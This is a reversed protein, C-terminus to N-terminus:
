NRLNINTNPPYYYTENNLVVISTGTLTANSGTGIDVIGKGGNIILNGGIFLGNSKSNLNNWKSNDFICDFMSIGDDLSVAGGNTKAINNIFKCVSM